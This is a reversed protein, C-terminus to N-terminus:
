HDEEFSDLKMQLSGLEADKTSLALNLEKSSEKEEKLSREAVGMATELSTIRLAISSIENEQREIETRLISSDQITIPYSEVMADDRPVKDQLM